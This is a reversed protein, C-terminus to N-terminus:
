NTGVAAAPQSLRRSSQRGLWTADAARQQDNSFAGLHFNKAYIQCTVDNMTSSSYVSSDNMLSSPKSRHKPSGDGFFIGCFKIPIQVM